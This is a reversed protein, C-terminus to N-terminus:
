EVIGEFIDFVKFFGVEGLLGNFEFVKDVEFDKCM